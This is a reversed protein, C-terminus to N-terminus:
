QLKGKYHDILKEMAHEYYTAFSKFGQQDREYNRYLVARLRQSPTKMNDELNTELSEIQQREKESFPEKKFALYGYSGLNEVIGLLEQPNLEITEFTVKLTKDKLSRYSELISSIIIM